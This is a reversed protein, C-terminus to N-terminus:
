GKLERQILQSDLAVKAGVVLHNVHNREIGSDNLRELLCSLVDLIAIFETLSV